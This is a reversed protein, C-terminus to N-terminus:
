KNLELVVENYASLADPHVTRGKQLLDSIVYKLAYRMGDELSKESERRMIDVDPYDREESIFDAIFIIKSLLPMNAAGTTHTRIANLIGEDTIGLTDRAYVMGSVAHYLKPTKELFDDLIIGGTRIIQLLKEPNFEKTIDHLIGATEAKLPDEGYKKALLAASNAVNKSHIFRRESLTKEALEYFKSIRTDM